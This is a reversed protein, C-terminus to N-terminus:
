TAYKNKCLDVLYFHKATRELTDLAEVSDGLAGQKRADELKLFIRSLRQIVEESTFEKLVELDDPSVQLSDSHVKREVLRSVFFPLLQRNPTPFRAQWRRADAPESPAATRRNLRPPLTRTTRRVNGYGQLKGTAM